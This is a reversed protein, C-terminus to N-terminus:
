TVKHRFKHAGREEQLHQVVQADQLIETKRLDSFADVKFKSPARSQLSYSNVKHLDSLFNRNRSKDHGWGDFVALPLFVRGERVALGALWAGDSAIAAGTTM